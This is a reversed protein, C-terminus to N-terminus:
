KKEGIGNVIRLLASLGVIRVTRECGAGGLVRTVTGGRELDCSDTQRGAPVSYTVPTAM